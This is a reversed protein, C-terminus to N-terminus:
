CGTDTFIKGCDWTGKWTSAGLEGGGGCCFQLAPAAVWVGRLRGDNERMAGWQSALSRGGKQGKCMTSGSGLQSRGLRPEQGESSPKHTKKRLLEKRSWEVEVLRGTVM